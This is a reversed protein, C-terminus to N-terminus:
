YKFLCLKQYNKGCDYSFIKKLPDLYELEMERFMRYKQKWHRWGKNPYKFIFVCSQSKM